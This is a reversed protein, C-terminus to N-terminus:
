SRFAAWVIPVPLEREELMAVLAVVLRPWERGLRRLENTRGADAESLLRAVDDASDTMKAPGGKPRPLESHM